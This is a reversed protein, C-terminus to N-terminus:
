ETEGIRIRITRQGPPLDVGQLIVPLGEPLREPAKAPDFRIVLDGTKGPEIVAPDSEVLLWDPLLREDATIRLPKDGANLCEIRETQIQKGAIRVANQKLLLSGMGYPYDATPLVSPLVHGTLELVASPLKDSLQTFVFIKRQFSGPHGKPHYTVRVTGEGGPRVPERSWTAVACGCTTRIRTIVLPTDGDNRWPYTYSRPTDDEGIQGADVLTREFRMARGGPATAPHLLSDLREKPFTKIQARLPAPSGAAWLATLCLIAIKGGRRM